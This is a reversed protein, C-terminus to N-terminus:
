NSPRDLKWGTLTPHFARWPWVGACLRILVMVGAFGLIASLLTATAAGVAAFHRVLLTNLGIGVCGVIVSNASALWFAGQKVYYPASMACASLIWAAIVLIRFSLVAGAFEVGGYASIIVDAWVIAPIVVILGGFIAARMAVFTVELGDGLQRSVVAYLATQIAAFAAFAGFALTHAAAFLGAEREGSIQFVLIQNARVYVFFAVTGIHQKLGAVLYSYVLRASAGKSDIGVLRLLALLLYLVGVVQVILTVTIAYSVDLYGMSFAAAILAIGIAAMLMNCSGALRTRGSAVAFALLNICLISIAPLALLVPQLAGARLASAKPSVWVCIAMALIAGVAVMVCSALVISLQAPEAIKYRAQNSFHYIASGISLGFVVTVLGAWTLAEAVVGRGEPALARNVLAASLIGSLALTAQGAGSWFIGRSLM